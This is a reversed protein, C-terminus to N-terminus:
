TFQLVLGVLTAVMALPPKSVPTDRPIAVTLACLPLTMAVVGTLMECFCIVLMAMWGRVWVKLKDSPGVVM